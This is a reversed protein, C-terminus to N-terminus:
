PNQRLLLIQEYDDSAYVVKSCAESEEPFADWQM